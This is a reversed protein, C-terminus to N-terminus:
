SSELTLTQQQRTASLQLHGPDSCGVDAGSRQLQLLCGGNDSNGIIVHDLLRIQLLTAAEVLRRTLQRDATSPTPDGSSPQAGRDHRLRFARDGLPLDGASARHERQPQWRSKRSAFLFYKTDLLVARLSERTLARM